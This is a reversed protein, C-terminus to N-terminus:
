TALHDIVAKCDILHSDAEQRNKIEVKGEKLNRDGVTIRVPLGLLDASAFMAGPRENRDDFLVAYGAAELQAKLELSASKVTDSKHFAVPILHVDFPAMAAPWCIGNEDHHQEIAAAVIRSIGIGYCGMEVPSPKGNEGLVELGLAESYKCGLQFIHGVEIGRTSTLVGDGDPSTDGEVAFRLDVIEGLPADREWNVGKLHMNETNAGCAFDALAAADPDVYTKLPCSVVGLSGPYAGMQEFVADPNALTFPAAVHELKEAKLPNIDHDGRVILAVLQNDESGNVVLTKIQNIAPLNYGSTLAEITKCGPTEFKTLPESAAPRKIEPRQCTAKELNAAYHGTSSVMLTDEGADALVHFEHSTEGGISGTDAEVARFRLGLRTFINSYAQFMTQYTTELDDANTHFSYADKMIFERARMVGFRPRIEDRFKTAIQFLTIPLQKYSSVEGKLLTTIVEEHTPGVCFDRDHRDKLKLLERGYQDWRGTEHWLDAPQVIPMLIEGAGAKEMEDRVIHKVKKLARLGLPLWTYLGSALKRILGARLMLQHSALQAGAPVEKLMPAYLKSAFM